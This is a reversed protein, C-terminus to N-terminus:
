LLDQARLFALLPLLPLGLISFFDGDVQDFLQAGRGELQYAGVSLLADDGVAALYDGIFVDDLVRMVLRPTELSSWCIAGDKVVCAASLLLHEKGSLRRLHDAAGTLDVPKDFLDGDCALMQDACIVWAGPHRTSVTKAKEVALAMAIDTAPIARALMDQKVAAEDVDAPDIVCDVGADRLMRARSVSGSALVLQDSM